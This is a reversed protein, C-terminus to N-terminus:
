KGEIFNKIEEQHKIILKAKKVGFSILPYQPRAGSETEEWITVTPSGKYEGVEVVTKLEQKEM